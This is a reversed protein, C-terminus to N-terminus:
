GIDFEHDRSIAKATALANKQASGTSGGGVNNLWKLEVSVAMITNGCLRLGSV